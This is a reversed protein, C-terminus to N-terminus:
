NLPMMPPIVTRVNMHTVSSVGGVEITALVFLRMMWTLEQEYVIRLLPGDDFCEQSRVNIILHSILVEPLCLNTQVYVMSRKGELASM